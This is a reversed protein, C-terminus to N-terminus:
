GPGLKRESHGDHVLGIRPTRELDGARGCEGFLHDCVGDCRRAFELDVRPVSRPFSDDEQEGVKVLRTWVAAASLTDDLNVVEKTAM